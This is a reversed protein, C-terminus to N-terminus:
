APMRLDNMFETVNAESARLKAETAQMSSVVRQIEERAEALREDSVGPQMGLELLQQSVKKVWYEKKKLDTKYYAVKAKLYSLKREMFGELAILLASFPQQWKAALTATGAALVALAAYPGVLRVGVLYFVTGLVLSHGFFVGPAFWDAYAALGCLVATLTLDRGWSWGETQPASM